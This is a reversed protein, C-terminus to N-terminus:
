STLNPDLLYAHLAQVQSLALTLLNDHNIPDKISQTFFITFPSHLSTKNAEPILITANAM